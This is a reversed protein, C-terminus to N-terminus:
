TPQRLFVHDGGLNGREQPSHSICQVGKMVLVGQSAGTSCAQVEICLIGWLLPNDLGLIDMGGFSLFLNKQKLQIFNKQKIM